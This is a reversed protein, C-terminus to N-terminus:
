KVAVGVCCTTLRSSDDEFVSFLCHFYAEQKAQLIPLSSQQALRQDVSPCGIWSYDLPMIEEPNRLCKTLETLKMLLQVLCVVLVVVGCHGSKERVPHKATPLVDFFSVRGQEVGYIPGYFSTIICDESSCPSPSFHTSQFNNKRSEKPSKKRKAARAVDDPCEGSLIRLAFRAVAAIFEFERSVFAVFSEKL